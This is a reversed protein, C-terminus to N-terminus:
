NSNLACESGSDTRFCRKTGECDADKTCSPDDVSFCFDHLYECNFFFTDFPEFFIGSVISEIM